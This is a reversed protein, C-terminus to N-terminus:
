HGDLESTHTAAKISIIHKIRRTKTVSQFRVSCQRVSFARRARDIWHVTWNVLTPVRETVDPGPFNELNDVFVESPQHASNFTRISAVTQQHHGPSSTRFLLVRERRKGREGRRGGEKGKGEMGKRRKDGGM